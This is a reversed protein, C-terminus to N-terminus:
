IIKKKKTEKLIIILFGKKERAELGFIKGKFNIHFMWRWEAQPCRMNLKKISTIIKSNM